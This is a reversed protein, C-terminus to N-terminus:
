DDDDHSYSAAGALSFFLPALFVSVPVVTATGFLAFAILGGKLVGGGPDGAARSRTVHRWALLLLAVLCILGPYGAGLLTDFYVSDSTVLTLPSPGEAAAARAFGTFGVGFPHSLSTRIALAQADLRSSVNEEGLGHSYVSGMREQFVGGSSLGVAVTVAAAAILGLKASFRIDSASVIYLLAGAAGLVGSRSGSAVLCMASGALVLGLLVRSALTPRRPLCATHLIALALAAYSLDNPNTLAGSARDELTVPDWTEPRPLMQQLEPLYTFLVLGATSVFTVARVWTGMTRSRFRTAAFPVVSALAFRKMFLMFELVGDGQPDSLAKGIGALMGIVLALVAILLPTLRVERESATVVSAGTVIWLGLLALDSAALNGAGPVSGLPLWVLSTPVIVLLLARGAM